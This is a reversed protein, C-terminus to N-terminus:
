ACPGGGESLRREIYQRAEPWTDLRVHSHEAPGLLRALRPDAVFHMRVVETAHEAVSALNRPIDDLFFVPARIAGALRAVVAGKSGSNAIVPYDMGHRALNRQRTEALHFPVNSVVVIQAQRALASLAAAAGEVADIHGTREEFFLQLLERVQLGPLATGTARDRINGTLAFSGLELKLGQEGLYSELARVFQLLVEDADSIILPREVQLRLAALQAIVEGPLADPTRNM